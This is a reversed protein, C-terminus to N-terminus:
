RARYLRSSVREDIALLAFFWLILLPYLFLTTHASLYVSFWFVNSEVNGAYLPLPTRDVLLLPRQM